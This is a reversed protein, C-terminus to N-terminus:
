EFDQSMLMWLGPNSSLATMIGHKAENCEQVWQDVEARKAHGLEPRVHVQLRQEGKVDLEFRMAVHLRDPSSQRNRRQFVRFKLELNRIHEINESLLNKTWSGILVHLPTVDLHEGDILTRYNGVFPGLDFVVQLGHFYFPASEHRLQRNVRLLPPVGHHHGKKYCYDCRFTDYPGLNFRTVGKYTAFHEACIQDRLERPLDLLRFPRSKAELLEWLEWPEKDSYKYVQALVTKSVFKCILKSAKFSIKPQKENFPQGIKHLHARESTYKDLGVCRRLAGDVADSWHLFDGGESLHHPEVASRPLCHHRLPRGLNDLAMSADHLLSNCNQTRTHPHFPFTSNVVIPPHSTIHLISTM